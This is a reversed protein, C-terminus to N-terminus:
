IWFTRKCGQDIDTFDMIAEGRQDNKLLTKEGDTNDFKGQYKKSFEGLFDPM